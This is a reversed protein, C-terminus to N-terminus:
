IRDAQYGLITGGAPVHGIVQTVAVTKGRERWVFDVAARFAPDKAMADVDAGEMDKRIEPDAEIAAEIARRYISEDPTDSKGQTSM